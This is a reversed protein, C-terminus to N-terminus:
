RVKLAHEYSFLKSHPEIKEKIISLYSQNDKYEKLLEQSIPKPSTSAQHVQAAGFTRDEKIHIVTAKKKLASEVEHIRERVL